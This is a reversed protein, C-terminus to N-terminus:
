IASRDQRWAAPSIGTWRHFASYFGRLESFGCRDAVEQITCDPDKLGHKARDMRVQDVLNRFTFEQEKLRRRLSRSSVCLTAAVEEQSPVMPGSTCIVSIVDQVVDSKIELRAVLSQCLTKMSEHTLSDPHRLRIDLYEKKIRIENAPQNFQVPIEFCRRYLTPYGPDSYNLGVRTPICNLGFHVQGGVKINSMAMELLFRSVEPPVEGRDSLRHIIEADSLVLDWRLYPVLLDLYKRGVAIVQQINKSALQAYGMPGTDEVRILKGLRLGLGPEPFLKLLNQYFRIEQERTLTSYLEAVQGPDIGTGTLLAVLQEEDCSLAHTCVFIMHMYRLLPKRTM